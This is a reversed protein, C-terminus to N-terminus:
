IIRFLFSHLHTVHPVKLSVVASVWVFVSYFTVLVSTGKQNPKPLLMAQTLNSILSRHKPKKEESHWKFPLSECDSSNAHEQFTIM